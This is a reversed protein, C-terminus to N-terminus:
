PEFGTTQMKRTLLGFHGNFKLVVVYDRGISTANGNIGGSYYTVTLLDTKASIQKQKDM